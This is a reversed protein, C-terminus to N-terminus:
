SFRCVSNAVHLVILILDLIHKGMHCLSLRSCLQFRLGSCYNFDQIDRAERILGHFFCGIFRRLFIQLFQPPCCFFLCAPFQM